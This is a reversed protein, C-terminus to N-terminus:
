KKVYCCDFQLFAYRTLPTGFDESGNSKILPYGVTGSSSIKKCYKEHLSLFGLFNELFPESYKEKWNNFHPQLNAVNGVWTCVESGVTKSSISLKYRVLPVEWAAAEWRASIEETSEKSSNITFTIKIKELGGQLYHLYTEGSKCWTTAWNWLAPRTGTWNRTRNRIWGSFKKRDFKFKEYKGAM